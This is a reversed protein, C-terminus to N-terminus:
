RRKKLVYFAKLNKMKSANIKSMYIRDSFSVM